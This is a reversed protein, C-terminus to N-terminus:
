GRLRLLGIDGAAPQRRIVHPPHCRGELLVGLITEVALDPLTRAEAWAVSADDRDRRKNRAIEGQRHVVIEVPREVVADLGALKGLDNRM